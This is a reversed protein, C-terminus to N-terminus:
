HSTCNTSFGMQSCNTVVPRNVANIMQQNQNILQQQYMSNSFAQAAVARQALEQRNRADLDAGLRQGTEVLKASEERNIARAGLIYEGWSVQRKVLRILLEDSRAYGEQYVTAMAPAVRYYGEVNAKRCQVLRDHRASVLEVDRPTAYTPDTQQSLTAQGIDAQPWHRDLDAFTPDSNISAICASVQTRTQALTAKITEGERQAATACGGLAGLLAALLVYRSVM